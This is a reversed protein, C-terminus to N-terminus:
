TSRWDAGALLNAVSLDEDLDPWHLGIGGGGIEYKERQHPTARHLRPFWIIPVGIVRGDTLFVQMIDDRFEVSKALATTPVFSRDVRVPNSVSTSM